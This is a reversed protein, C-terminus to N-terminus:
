RMKSYGDKERIEVGVLFPSSGNLNATQVMYAVIEPSSITQGYGISLPRNEYAHMKLNQPIFEERPVKSIAELVKPSEVGGKKLQDVLEKKQQHIDLEQTHSYYNDM